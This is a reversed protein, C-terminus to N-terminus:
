QLFSFFTKFISLFRRQVLYINLFQLSLDKVFKSDEEESKKERKKWNSIFNFNFFFFFSNDIFSRYVRYSTILVSCCYSVLNKNHFHHIYLFKRPRHGVHIVTSSIPFSRLYSFKINIERAFDYM